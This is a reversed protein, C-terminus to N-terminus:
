ELVPVLVRHDLGPDLMLDRLATVALGSLDHLRDRQQSQDVLRGVLVDVLHHGAIEAAAAGIRADAGRDVRSRGLHRLLSIPMWVSERRAKTNPEAAMAPPM